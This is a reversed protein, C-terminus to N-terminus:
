MCNAWVVADPRGAAVIDPLAKLFGDGAGIDLVVSGKRISAAVEPADLGNVMKM